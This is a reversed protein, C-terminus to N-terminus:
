AEGLRCELGILRRLPVVVPSTLLDVEDGLAGARQLDVALGSPDTRAVRDEDRRPRPVRELVVARALQRDETNARRRVRVLVREEASGSWSPRSTSRRSPEM